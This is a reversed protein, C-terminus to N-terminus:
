RNTRVALGVAEELSPMCLQLADKLFARATRAGAGEVWFCVSVDSRGLAMASVIDRVILDVRSEAGWLAVVSSRVRPNDHVIDFADGGRRESDSYMELVGAPSAGAGRILDSAAPVLGQGSVILGVEGGLERYNFGLTRAKAERESLPGGTGELALRPRGRLTSADIALRADLVVLRGGATVGLPNIEISHAGYELYFGVLKCLFEALAAPDIGALDPLQSRIEEADAPKRIDFPISVFAKPTDALVRSAQEFRVNPRRSVLITPQGLRVSTRVAVYVSAVVEILPEVLVDAVRGHGTGMGLLRSAHAKALRAEDATGTAALMRPLFSRDLAKVVVRTAGKQFYRAAISAAEFPHDAVEGPPVDFGWSRLERKTIFENYKM